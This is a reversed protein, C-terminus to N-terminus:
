ILMARRIETIASLRRCISTCLAFQNAFSRGRVVRVGSDYNGENLDWVDGGMDFTGYPGPSAAFEGVPTLFNTSDTYGWFSACYNADNPTTASLVNSPVNNSQTPYTWYGANATGGEYYAAKYFENENPIVYTATSTRTVAMLAATSSGGNLLYSGTETTGPGEPANPQGNQLWNSFRAGDGWSVDFMPCNAAQGYSGAVSYSYSGPSGSQILKITDPASPNPSGSAFNPSAMASNYLGYPDSTTAVANLFQYYQGVTVDYKGMQYVYSVSGYGSTHDTTMVTTDPANGPDGVTVFQLSTQGGPM